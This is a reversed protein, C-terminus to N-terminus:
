NKIPVLTIYSTDGYIITKLRLSDNTLNLVKFVMLEGYGKLAEEDVVIEGNEYKYLASDVGDISHIYVVGNTKFDMLTNELLIKQENIINDLEQRLSSKISDINQNHFDTNNITLTDIFIKNLAINDDLKPNKLEVGKWKKHLLSGDNSHCAQLFLCCFLLKTSINIFYARM